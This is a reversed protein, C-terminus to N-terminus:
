RKRALWVSISWLFIAVIISLIIVTLNPNDVNGVIPSVVAVGFVVQGASDIINSLRNLQNTTFVPKRTRLFNKM